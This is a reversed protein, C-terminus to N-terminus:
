QTKRVAYLQDYLTLSFNKISPNIRKAWETELVRLYEQRDMTAADSYEYITIYRPGQRNLQFSAVEKDSLRGRQASIVGPVEMFMPIHESEYWRNFDAEAERNVDLRVVLIVGTKRNSM